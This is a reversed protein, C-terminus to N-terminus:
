PRRGLATGVVDLLKQGRFPKVIYGEAGLAAGREPQDVITVFVVPIAQTAPDARLARFVAWGDVPEMLVDLTVLDIGGARALALGDEAGRATLVRYGAGELHGKLMLRNPPHDEVVLVTSAPRPREDSTM